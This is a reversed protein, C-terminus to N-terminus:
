YVVSPLAGGDVAIAQGTIAGAQSSALFVVLPAIDSPEIIRGIPVEAVFSAEAEELTIGREEARAAFRAPARDTRAFSPHVVNVLIQDSAVEAGLHKAFNAVAANGLGAPLAGKHAIRAALGGICIIRGGGTRRMHPVAARSCRMAALTKGQLREMLQEDSGSQASAAVNTSANNVLVDLRGFRAATEDVVSRCDDAQFLDAQLALTEVQLRRLEAETEALRGPQRACIAVNAGEAAFRLAIERGIGRSGGTVLVAKGRLGLDM